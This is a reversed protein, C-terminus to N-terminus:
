GFKYHRAYPGRHFTETSREQVVRTTKQGEREQDSLIVTFWEEPDILAIDDDDTLIMRELVFSSNCQSRIRVGHEFELDSLGEAAPRVTAVYSDKKVLLNYMM